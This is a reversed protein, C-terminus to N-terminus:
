LSARDKLAPHGNDEVLVKLFNREAIAGYDHGANAPYVGFYTLPASGTNMTRHATYGPVYVVKGEGLSELRSEGTTEDELLMMGEGSLGIYIEAAERTRHLHGKTLFYEDGVKGPYLVGLGYHLDGIGNAPEMATVRYLLTDEQALAAEYAAEDAFCGRLQSLRREVVTGGELRATAVEYLHTLAPFQELM